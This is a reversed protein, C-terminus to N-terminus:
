KAAGHNYLSNIREPTWFVDDRTCNINDTDALHNMVQTVIRRQHEVKQLLTLYHGLMAPDNRYIPLMGLTPYEISPAHPNAANSGYKLALPVFEFDFPSDYGFAQAEVWVESIVLAMEIVRQRTECLGHNTIYNTVGPYSNSNELMEEWVCLAIFADVQVTM